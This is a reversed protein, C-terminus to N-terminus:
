SREEGFAQRWSEKEYCSPREDDGHCYRVTGHFAFGAAPDRGCRGCADVGPEVEGRAPATGPGADRGQRNGGESEAADDALVGASDVEGGPLLGAQVDEGPQEDDDEQFAATRLQMAMLAHRDADDDCGCRAEYHIMPNGSNFRRVLEHTRGCTHCVPPQYYLGEAKAALIKAADDGPPLDEKFATVVETFTIERDPPVGTNAAGADREGPPQLTTGGTSLRRLLDEERNERWWKLLAKAQVEFRPLPTHREPRECCTNFGGHTPCEFEGVSPCWYIESGCCTPLVPEDAM